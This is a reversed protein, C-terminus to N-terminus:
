RAAPGGRAPAAPGAPAVRVAARLLGAAHAAVRGAHPVHDRRPARVPMQRVHRTLGDPRRAVISPHWQREDGTGGVGLLRLDHEVSVARRQAAARLRDEDHRREGVHLGIARLEHRGPDDETGMDYAEGPEDLLARPASAHAPPREARKRALADRRGDDLRRRELCQCARGARAAEGDLQQPEDVLELLQTDRRLPERLRQARPGAVVGAAQAVAVLDGSQVGAVAAAELSERAEVRAEVLRRREVRQALVGGGPARCRDEEVAEVVQLRQLAIGDLRETAGAGLDHQREGVLRAPHGEGAARRREGLQVALPDLVACELRAGLVVRRARARRQVVELAPEELEVLRLQEIGVRDIRARRDRQQLAAALARLELQHRGLRRPQDALLAHCRLLDRDHQTSRAIVIRQEALHEATEAQAERQVAAHREPVGREAAAEDAERAARQGVAAGVVEDGVKPRGAQQLTGLEGVPQLRARALRARPGGVGYARQPLLLVPPEVRDVAHARRLLTAAGLEGLAQMGLEREEERCRPPAARLDEGAGLRLVDGNQAGPPGRELLEDRERAGVARERGVGVLQRLQQVIEVDEDARTGAGADDGDGLRQRQARAAHLDQEGAAQLLPDEGRRRAGLRKQGVGLALLDGGGGAQPQAAAVLEGVLAIEEVRRDRAGLLPQVEGPVLGAVVALLRHAREEDRIYAVEEARLELLAHARAREALDAPGRARRRALALAQAAGGRAPRPPALRGDTRQAVLDQERRQALARRPRRRADLQPRAARHLPEDLAHQLRRAEGRIGLRHQAPGQRVGHELRDHSAQDVRGAAPAQVLRRQRERALERAVRERAEPAGLLEDHRAVDAALARHLVAQAGVDHAVEVVGRCRAGPEHRGRELDGEAGVVLVRRELQRAAHPQAPPDIADVGPGAAGREDVVVLSPHRDLRCAPACLALVLDRQVHERRAAHQAQVRDAAQVLRDAAAVLAGAPEHELIGIRPQLDDLGVAARGLIELRDDVAHEFVDGGDHGLQARAREHRPRSTCTCRCPSRTDSSRGSRPRMLMLVPM